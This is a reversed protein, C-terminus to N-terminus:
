QTREKTPPYLSLFIAATHAFYLSGIMDHATDLAFNITAATPEALIFPIQRAASMIDCIATALQTELAEREISLPPKENNSM